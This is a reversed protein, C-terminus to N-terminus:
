SIEAFINSAWTLSEIKDKMEDQLTIGFTTEMEVKTITKSNNKDIAKFLSNVESRTLTPDLQGVFYHFERVSILRSNDQDIKKFLRAASVGRDKLLKKIRSRIENIRDNSVYDGTEEEQASRYLTFLTELVVVQKDFDFIAQFLSNYDEHDDGLEM